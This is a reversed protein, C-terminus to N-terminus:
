AKQRTAPVVLAGGLFADELREIAARVMSQTSKAYHATVNQTAHGLLAGIVREETGLEGLLTACTHRLTHIHVNSLGSREVAQAFQRSLNRPGIPTGIESPFILGHERWKVGRQKRDDLQQQWHLELQEMLRPTLPLTRTSSKTKPTDTHVKGSFDQIQQTVKITCAQRDLNRWLLGLGEGRRLGLLFYLDYLLANHGEMLVHYLARAEKLTLARQEMNLEPLAIATAVNYPVLRYQVAVNLMGRLRLYANRVTAGAYDEDVLDNVLQQVRATTLKDLRLTGVHPIVYYRLVNGYNTYTSLKKSRKVVEELWTVSFEAITPQKANIDVGQDRSKLLAKLRELAERQTAAVVKRRNGNADRPTRGEWKGDPRKRVMGEGDARKKAM